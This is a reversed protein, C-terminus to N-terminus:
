IALLESLAFPPALNWVLSLNLALPMAEKIAPGKSRGARNESERFLGRVAGAKQGIRCLGPPLRWTTDVFVGM